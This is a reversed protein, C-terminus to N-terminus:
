RGGEVSRQPETNFSKVWKEMKKKSGWCSLPTENYFYGIYAPINKLNEVDAQGIAESLNNQIVAKLFNGPVIGNEIYRKIGGMMREPIYFNNFKYM